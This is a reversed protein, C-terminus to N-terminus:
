MYNGSGLIVRSPNISDASSTTEERVRRNGMRTKAEEFWASPNYSVIRATNM